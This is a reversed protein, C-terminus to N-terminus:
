IQKVGTCTSYSDTLQVPALLSDSQRDGILVTPRAGPHSISNEMWHQLDTSTLFCLADNKGDEYVGHDMIFLPMRSPSLEQARASKSAFSAHLCRPVKSAGSM